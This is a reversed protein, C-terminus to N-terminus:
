SPPFSLEVKESMPSLPRDSAINSTFWSSGRVPPSFPYMNHHSLLGCTATAIGLEAVVSRGKDCRLKEIFCEDILNVKQNADPAPDLHRIAHCEIPYHKSTKTPLNVNVKPAQDLM